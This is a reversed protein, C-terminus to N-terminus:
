RFFSRIITFTESKRRSSNLFHFGGSQLPTINASGIDTLDIAACAFGDVEKLRKMTQVRLSSKGMQRSNLVYCFEGKKIAQYLENDAKRTVYTPASAPLSGGVQYEYNVSDLNEM